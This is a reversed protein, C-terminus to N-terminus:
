RDTTWGFYKAMHEDPVVAPDIYSHIGSFLQSWGGLFCCKELMAGVAWLKGLALQVGLWKSVGVPAEGAGVAVELLRSGHVDSGTAPRQGWSADRVQQWHQLLQVLGAVGAAPITLRGSPPKVCYDWHNEDDSYDWLEPLSGDESRPVDVLSQPQESGTQYAQRIEEQERSPVVREEKSWTVVGGGAEKRTKRRVAGFREELMQAVVPVVGQGQAWEEPGLIPVSKTELEALASNPGIRGGTFLHVGPVMKKTEPHKAAAGLFGLDAVQAQGCSNPCGTWHMRVENPIELLAELEDSIARANAKTEVLGFGCFESGPCAVLGSHIRGPFPTMGGYQGGHNLLPEALLEEVRAEPVGSLVINQEVSLRLNGDGYERALTAFEHMDNAHLRGVPVNVGVWFLGEEQQAHVGLISRREWSPDLISEGKRALEGDPLRAAVEARFAEMGMADILYMLRTKNRAGRFGFDRFVCLVSDALAVTHSMPVWADMCMAADCRSASFLGGVVINFGLEGTESHRAPKFALDNIHPHEFEDHTGVLAINFKRPLNTFKPNGRGNDTIHDDLLRMYPRTDFLELPDLGAVPSGVLNRVNDLGSQVSTLGHEELGDFIAPVSELDVGRLQWSMRTTIDACIAGSTETEELNDLCTALFDVQDATCIGNPMKLRMMFRKPTTKRRHFLGMGKLTMDLVEKGSEEDLADWDAAALDSLVQLNKGYKHILGDATNNKSKAVEFPSVKMMHKERVRMQGPWQPNEVLETKPEWPADVAAPQSAGAETVSALTESLVKIPPHETPARAVQPLDEFVASRDSRPLAKDGIGKYSEECRTSLARNTRSTSQTPLSTKSKLPLVARSGPALSPGRM